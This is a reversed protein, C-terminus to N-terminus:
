EERVPCVDDDWRAACEECLPVRKVGDLTPFERYTTAPVGEKAHEKSGHCIAM